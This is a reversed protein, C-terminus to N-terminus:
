HFKRNTGTVYVSNLALISHHFYQIPVSPKELEFEWEGMFNMQTAKSLDMDRLWICEISNHHSNFQLAFDIRAM